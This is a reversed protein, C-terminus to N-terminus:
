LKLMDEPTVLHIKIGEATEIQFQRTRASDDFGTQSAVIIEKIPKPVLPHLKADTIFQSLVNYKILFVKAQIPIGTHTIGDVGKDPKPKSAKYFENVWAEFTNGDMEKVESLDRTIYRAQEFLSHSRNSIVQFATPLKHPERPSTDIDIGIWQRNLKSAVIVTTGCGCFPDLVVGGEPSAAEIARRLLGEPKQTPYGTREKAAPNIQQTKQDTWVDDCPRKKKSDKLYFKYRLQKGGEILAGTARLRDLTDQSYTKLLVSQWPGNPDNDPNKFRRRIYEETYDILDLKFTYV